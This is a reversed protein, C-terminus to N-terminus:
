KLHLWKLNMSIIEGNEDPIESLHEVINFHEDIHKQPVQTGTEVQKSGSIYLTEKKTKDGFIPDKVITERVMKTVFGGKQNPNSQTVVFPKMINPKINIIPKPLLLVKREFNLPPLQIHTYRRSICM